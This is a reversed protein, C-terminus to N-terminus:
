NTSKKTILRKAEKWNLTKSEGNIRKLRRNDFEKTEEETFSYEDENENYEKALAYLLKLLRDDSENIYQHLKEKITTTTM